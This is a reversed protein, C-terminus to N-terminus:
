DTRGSELSWRNWPLVLVRGTSDHATVPTMGLVALWELTADSTNSLQHLEDAGVVLTSQAGFAHRAGSTWCEGHGNLVVIVAECEYRYWPTAAGAALSQWWVELTYTGSALSALTKHVLGPLRVAQVDAHVLVAM